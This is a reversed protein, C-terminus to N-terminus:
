RSRVRIVTLSMLDSHRDRPDRPRPPSAAASAIGLLPDAGRRVGISLSLDRRVVAVRKHVRGAGPMATRLGKADSPGRDVDGVAQLRFILSVSTLLFRAM